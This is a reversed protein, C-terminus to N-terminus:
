PGGLKGPLFQRDSPWPPIPHLCTRGCIPIPPCTGCSGPSGSNMPTIWGWSRGWLGRRRGFYKAAMSERLHRDHVTRGARDESRRRGPPHRVPRLPRRGGLHSKERLIAVAEGISSGPQVRAGCGCSSSWRRSLGRKLAPAWSLPSGATQITQGGSEIDDVIRYIRDADPHYRDYSLEDLIYLVILMCAAMGIALGVINILSYVPQRLLNRLAVTLYNLIM